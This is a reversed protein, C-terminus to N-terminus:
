LAPSLLAGNVIVANLPSISVAVINRYFPQLLPSKRPSKINYMDRPNQSVWEAINCEGSDLILGM